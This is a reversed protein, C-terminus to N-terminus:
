VRIMGNHRLLHEMLLSGSRLASQKAAKAAEDPDGKKFAELIRMHEGLSEALRGPLSLALFRYRLTRQDLSAIMGGLTKNGAITSIMRHFRVNLNFYEGVNGSRVVRTMVSCIKELAALDADEHKLCALETSAAALAARIFNVEQVEAVSIEKVKWGRHPTFTVYGVSELTRMAERIPTRSVAFREALDDEIMRQNPKLAGKIIDQKLKAAIIRVSTAKPKTRRITRGM